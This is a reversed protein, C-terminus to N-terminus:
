FSKPYFGKKVLWYDSLQDLIEKGGNLPGSPIM